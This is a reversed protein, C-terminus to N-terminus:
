GGGASELQLMVSEHAGDRWVRLSEDLVASLLKWGEEKTASAKPSISVFGVAGNCSARGSDVICASASAMKSQATFAASGAWRTDWHRESM